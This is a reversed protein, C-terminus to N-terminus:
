WQLTQKSHRGGDGVVRLVERRTLINQKQEDSEFTLASAGIGRWAYTSIVASMCM